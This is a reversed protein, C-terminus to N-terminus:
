WRGYIQRKLLVHPNKRKQILQQMKHYYNKWKRQFIKIWFTKLIAVQEMGPLEIMYGIDFKINEMREMIINYHSIPPYRPYFINYIESFLETTHSLSTNYFENVEIETDILFHGDIDISSNENAGDLIPHYLHVCMISYDRRHQPTEM